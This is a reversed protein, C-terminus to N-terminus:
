VPKNSNGTVVSGGDDSALCCEVSLEAGAREVQLSLEHVLDIDQDTELNLLLM